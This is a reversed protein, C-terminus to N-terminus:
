LVDADAARKQLISETAIAGEYVECHRSSSYFDSIHSFMEATKSLPSLSRQESGTESSPLPDPNVFALLRRQKKPAEDAHNRRLYNMVSLSTAYNLAYKEVLYRGEKDLLAAFPVSFLNGHPIITITEQTEASDPLLEGQELPEILLSHLKRLLEAVESRKAETELSAAMLDTLRNIDAALGQLEVPIQLAEIIVEPANEEPIIVWTTVCDGATQGTESHAHKPLLFYEIVIETQTKAIQKIEQMSLPPASSRSFGDTPLGHEGTTQHREALLDAFARARAAESAQLAEDPLGMKILTSIYTNYFSQSNDLSSIKAADTALKERWNDLWRSLGVMVEATQSPEFASEETFQASQEVLRLRGTMSLLVHDFIAIVGSVLKLFGKDDKDTAPNREFAKFEEDLQLVRATMETDLNAGSEQVEQMQIVFRRFLDLATMSEALGKEALAIVALKSEQLREISQKLKVIVSKFTLSAESVSLLEQKLQEVHALYSNHLQSAIKNLESLEKIRDYRLKSSASLVSGGEASLTEEGESSSESLLAVEDSYGDFEEITKEMHEQLCLFDYADKANNVSKGKRRQVDIALALAQVLRPYDGAANASLILAQLPIAQELLYNAQTLPTTTTLNERDSFDRDRLYLVVKELVLTAEKYKQASSLDYGLLKMERTEADNKPSPITAGGNDTAQSLLQVAVM